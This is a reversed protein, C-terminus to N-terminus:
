ILCKVCDDMPDGLARYSQKRVSKPAPQALRQQGLDTGPVSDLPIQCRPWHFARIKPQSPKARGQHADSRTVTGVRGSRWHQGDILEGRVVIKGLQHGIHDAHPRQDCDDRPRDACWRSSPTPCSWIPECRPRLRCTTLLTTSAVLNKSPSPCNAGHSATDTAVIADDIRHTRRHRHHRRAGGGTTGAVTLAITTGGDDGPSRRCTGRRDHAVRDVHHQRPCPSDPAM